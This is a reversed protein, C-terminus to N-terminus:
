VIVIFFVFKAQYLKRWLFLFFFRKLNINSSNWIDSLERLMRYHIWVKYESLVLIKAKCWLRLLIIEVSEETRFCFKKLLSRLRARFSFLLLVVEAKFTLFSHAWVSVPLFLLLFPKGRWNFSLLVWIPLFAAKGRMWLNAFLIQLLLM